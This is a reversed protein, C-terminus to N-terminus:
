LSMDTLCGRGSGTSSVSRIRPLPQAYQCWRWRSTPSPVAPSHLNLGALGRRACLQEAAAMLASGIGKRQASPRVALMALYGEAGGPPCDCRVAGVLEPLGAEGAPGTM